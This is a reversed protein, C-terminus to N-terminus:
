KMTSGKSLCHGLGRGGCKYGGGALRGDGEAGPYHVGCCRTALGLLTSHAAHWTSRRRRVKAEGKRKCIILLVLRAAGKADGTM